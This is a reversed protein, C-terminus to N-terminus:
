KKMSRKMCGNLLDLQHIQDICREFIEFGHKIATSSWPQVALLEGTEQLFYVNICTAEDRCWGRKVAENKYAALQIIEKEYPKRDIKVVSKWDIVYNESVLDITGGYRENSFTKELHCDRIGLQDMLAIVHNVAAVINDGLDKGNERGSLAKFIADHFETGLEAPKDKREKYLAKAQEMDGTELACDFATNVFYQILGFATPLGGNIITTVSAVAGAQKCASAYRSAKESMRTGDKKLPHYRMDDKYYHSM